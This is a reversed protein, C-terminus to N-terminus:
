NGTNRVGTRVQGTPAGLSGNPNLFYQTACVVTPTDDCDPDATRDGNQYVWITSQVFKGYAM